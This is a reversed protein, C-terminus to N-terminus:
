HELVLLELLLYLFELAFVGWVYGFQLFHPIILAVPMFGVCPFELAKHSVKLPIQFGLGFLHFSCYLDVLSIFLKLLFHVLMLRQNIFNLFVVLFFDGLFIVFDDLESLFYEHVLFENLVVFECEFIVDAFVADLIDMFFFLNVNLHFIQFSLM